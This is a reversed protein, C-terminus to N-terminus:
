PTRGAAALVPCPIGAPGRWRLARDMAELGREITELPTSYSFRLHGAGESGFITGPLCAVKAEQLLLESLKWSDPEIDSADPFAYFAGRPMECRFGLSSLGGVLLDRRKRYEARTLEVFDPQLKLAALGAWQVPTSVTGITNLAIKRIGGTYPEPAVVYGLRWGTMAYLKSFSFCTITREYMGPLSAISVHEVDYILSEYVEDSVVVLGHARAAEAVALLEARDLVLGTPNQPSNLFVCRTRPSLHAQIARELGQRRARRTDIPVITGGAASVVDRVTTWYPSLVLVEDLPDLITQFAAYLGHIGGSVVTIESTDAALGNQRRVKAALAELLPPIGSSPAYRTENRRLAEACAKKIPEPTDIFPEGGEFQFVEEGRARMGLLQNRITVIESFGINTLRDSLRHQQQLSM